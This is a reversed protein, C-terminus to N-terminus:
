ASRRRHSSMGAKGGHDFRHEAVRHLEAIASALPPMPKVGLGDIAALRDFLSDQPFRNM